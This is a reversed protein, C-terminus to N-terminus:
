GRRPAVQPWGSAALPQRARDRIRRKEIMRALRRFTKRPPLKRANVYSTFVRMRDRLTLGPLDFHGLQVLNRMRYRRAMPWRMSARRTHEHDIFAFRIPETSVVLVNYPTLDGHVYGHEHLRAIELGLAHLVSRRTRLDTAYRPNFLRAVMWGAIRRTAVLERGSGRHFGTLLVCPAAFGDRRLQEAVRVVHGARRIRLRRKIRGHARRQPEIQKVFVKVREGREGIEVQWTTAHRSRRFAGGRMGAVAEVAAEVLAEGGDAPPNEDSAPVVFRWGDRAIQRCCGANM